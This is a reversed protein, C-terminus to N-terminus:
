VLASSLSEVFRELLGEDAGAHSPNLEAVTLAAVRESAMLVRLADMAAQFSLGTNRGTNESLPADTFDIVDVDFHVVYHESGAEIMRVARRASDTPDVTVEEVPFRRV